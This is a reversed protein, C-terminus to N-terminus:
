FGELLFTHYSIRFQDNSILLRNSVKDIKILGKQEEMRSHSLTYLSIPTPTCTVDSCSGVAVYYAKRIDNLKYYERGFLTYIKKGSCHIKIVDAREDENLRKANLEELIKRKEEATYIKKTDKSM